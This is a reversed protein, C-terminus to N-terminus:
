GENPLDERIRLIKPQRLMGNVTVGKAQVEVMKGVLQEPNKWLDLRREDDWGKGLDARMQSSNYRIIAYGVTGERKGKGERLEVVLADYTPTPVIKYAEWQRSLNWTGYKHWLVIGEIGTKEIYDIAEEKTHPVPVLNARVEPPIAELRNEHGMTYLGEDFRKLPICDFVHIDMLLLDDESLPKNRQLMGATAEANMTFGRSIPDRFTVEMDLVMRHLDIGNLAILNGIVDANKCRKGARTYAKRDRLIIRMGDYKVFATYSEPAYAVKDELMKIPKTLTHRQLDDLLTMGIEELLTDWCEETTWFWVTPTLKHLRETREDISMTSHSARAIADFLVRDYGITNVVEELDLVCSRSEKYMRRYKTYLVGRTRTYITRLLETPKHEFSELHEPTLVLIDEKGINM